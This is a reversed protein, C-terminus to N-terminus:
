TAAFSPRYSGNINTVKVEGTCATDDDKLYSAISNMLENKELTKDTLTVTDNINQPLKDKNNKFHEKAADLMITEVESYTKKYFFKNYILASGFIIIVISILFVGMIILNKKEFKEKM